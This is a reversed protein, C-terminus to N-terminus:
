INYRIYIIWGVLITSKYHLPCWFFLLFSLAEEACVGYCNNIYANHIVTNVKYQAEGMYLSYYNNIYGGDIYANVKGFYALVPGIDYSVHNARGGIINKGLLDELKFDNIKERSVLFSGDKQTLQAFTQLYDKKVQM